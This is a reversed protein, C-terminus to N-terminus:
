HRLIPPFWPWFQSVTEMIELGTSVLLVIHNFDILIALGQLVFDTIWLAFTGRDM